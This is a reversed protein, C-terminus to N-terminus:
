YLYDLWVESRPSRRRRRRHALYDRKSEERARRGRSTIIIMAHQAGWASAAPEDNGRGGAALKDTLERETSHTSCTRSRHDIISQATEKIKIPADRPIAFYGPVSAGASAASERQQGSGEHAEWARRGWPFVDTHVCSHKGGGKAM